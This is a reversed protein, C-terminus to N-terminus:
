QCCLKSVTKQFEHSKALTAADMGKCAGLRQKTAVKDLYLGVSYVKAKIPGITKVRVGVGALTLGKSEDNNNKYLHQTSPEQLCFSWVDLAVSSYLNYCHMDRSNPTTHCRMALSVARNTRELATM